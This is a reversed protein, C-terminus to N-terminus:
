FEYKQEIKNLYYRRSDCADCSGKRCLLSLYKEKFFIFGAAMLLSVPMFLVRLDNQYVPTILRSNLMYEEFNVFSKSCGPIEILKQEGDTSIGYQTINMYEWPSYNLWPVKTVVELYHGYSFSSFDTGIMLVFSDPLKSIYELVSGKGLPSDPSNNESIYETIKGWLSFSHTPSSTRVVGDMRRFVESVAGTKSLSNNRDFLESSGVVPKWNYSFAPVIISGEPSIIEQINEIVKEITISPFEKNIRRFSSHILLHQKEKLGARLFLNKM